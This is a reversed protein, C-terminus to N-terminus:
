IHRNGRARHSFHEGYSIFTNSNGMRTITLFLARAHKTSHQDSQGMDTVNRWGTKGNPLLGSPPNGSIETQKMVQQCVIVQLKM